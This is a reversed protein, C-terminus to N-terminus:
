FFIKKNELNANIIGPLDFFINKSLSKKMIPSGFVDLICKTLDNNFCTLRVVIKTNMIVILTAVYKHTCACAFYSFSRTWYVLVM